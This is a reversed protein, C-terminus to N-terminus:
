MGSILQSSITAVTPRTRPNRVEVLRAAAYPMDSSIEERVQRANDRASTVCAMVSAANGADFMLSEVLAHPTTIDSPVKAIRLAGYLRDFVWGQKTFSRDLDM